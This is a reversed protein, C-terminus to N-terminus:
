FVNWRNVVFASLYGIAGMLIYIVGLVGFIGALSGTSLIAGVVVFVAGLLAISLWVSSTIQAAIKSVNDPIASGDVTNSPPNM